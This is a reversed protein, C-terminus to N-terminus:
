EGGIYKPFWFYLVDLITPLNVEVNRRRKGRSIGVRTASLAFFPAWM